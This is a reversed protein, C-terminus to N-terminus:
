GKLAQRQKSLSGRRSIRAKATRVAETRTSRKRAKKPKGNMESTQPRSQMLTISDHEVPQM